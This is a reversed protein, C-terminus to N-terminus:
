PRYTAPRGAVTGCSCAPRGVALSPSPISNPHRNLFRDAPSDLDAHEPAEVHADVALRHGVLSPLAPLGGGQDLQEGEGWRLAEVTLLDDVREPGVQADVLGGGPQVLGGVEGALHGADRVADHQAVVGHRQEGSRLEGDVRHGELVRGGLGEGRSRGVVGRGGDIQVAAVEQGSIDVLRPRIRGPLTQPHRMDLQEPHGPPPLVQEGDVRRVLVGVQRDHPAVRRSPIPAGRQALEFPEVMGQGALEADPGAVLGDGQAVLEDIDAALAWRLCQDPAAGLQGGDLAEEVVYRRSSPSGHKEDARGADALRRQEGPGSIQGVPSAPPRTVPDRRLDLAGPRERRHELRERVDAPPVRGQEVPEVVGVPGLDIPGKPAVLGLPPARAGALSQEDGGGLEYSQGGHPGPQNQGEVIEM